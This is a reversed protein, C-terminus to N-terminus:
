VGSVRLVRYNHRDNILLSGNRYDVVVRGVPLNLQTDASNNEVLRAGPQDTGIVRTVRRGDGSVRLVRHNRYDTILLSGDRDDIVSATPLNLQTDAPDNEVLRAGPQDTGIVRTVRRGDGSVRLVRHNDRDSLLVSGDRDDVEIGTPVNLQTDAPNNEVLRAGPQDTGIVRTVRRGDGSVRLVRHNGIENILFSGDRSDVVIENPDHLQTLTPDDEVLRAGPQDTGIVRTVRRGDSSVRLVRHNGSDVVLVSGDLLVAIGLPGKLRTRLPDDEVLRAAEHPAILRPMGGLILRNRQGDGSVAVVQDGGCDSVLFSGSSDVVGSGIRVFTSRTPDDEVGGITGHDRGALRDVRRDGDSVRLVNHAQMVLVSGDIPSVILGGVLQDLQTRSPDDRVLRFGRRDTGIVRSVRSVIGRNREGNEEVVLFDNEAIARNIRVINANASRDGQESVVLLRQVVRRLVGRSVDKTDFEESLGEVSESLRVGVGLSSQTFLGGWGICCFVSFLGVVCRFVGSSHIALCRTPLSNKQIYMGQVNDCLLM